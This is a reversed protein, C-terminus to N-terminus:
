EELGLLKFFLDWSFGRGPDRKRGKPLAIESHGKYYEKKTIGYRKNIDKCLWALAQYQAETFEGGIKGILEIGISQSNTILARGAHWAKNEEEVLLHIEGERTILYHASVGYDLLIQKCLDPDFPDTRDINVASM